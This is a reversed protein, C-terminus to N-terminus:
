AVTFAHEPIHEPLFRMGEGTQIQQRGIGGNRRKAIMELVVRSLLARAQRFDRNLKTPLWLPYFILRANMKLSVYEFVTRYAQGVADADGSIDTGLLTTSAVRLALRMMEPVVVMMALSFVLKVKVAAPVCRRTM